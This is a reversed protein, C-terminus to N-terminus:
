CIVTRSRSGLCLVRRVPHVLDGCIRSGTRNSSAATCQLATHVAFTCKCKHYSRCHEHEGGCNILCVVLDHPSSVEPRGLKDQWGPRCELFLRHYANYPLAICRTTDRTSQAKHKPAPASAAHALLAWVDTNWLSCVKKPNACRKTGDSQCHFPTPVLPGYPTSSTSNRGAVTTGNARATGDILSERQKMAGRSVM